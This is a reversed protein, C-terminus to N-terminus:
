PALKLRARIARCVEEPTQSVDVEIADRPPELTDFQSGLLDPDFFHGTRKQLREAIAERPASLFVMRVKVPDVVIMDRYSQKLASCAVIAHTGDALCRAILDRVAILWPRRDEDTLPIGAHMKRRNAEPHLEDGDHFEWRLERALMAGITSKGSGSVGMLVVVIPADKARNPMCLNERRYEETEM